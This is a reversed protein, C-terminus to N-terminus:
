IVNSIINIMKELNKKKSLNDMAYLFGNMGINNLENRSMSVVSVMKAALSDENEPPLIWGCMSNEITKSTDSGEDVCAIVPKKSFMYAIVKSPISSMAAGKKVPLLMVDAEDQIEPVMGYPVDKFQINKNKYSAAIRICQDKMSGAGAIILLANKLKAKVFSEILFEVGAVPGINGLYMFSFPKETYDSKISSKKNEHYRIFETEDQWNHIVEIKDEQIKRSEVLIDRMEESIAFIKSVNHLIFKDMPLFLKILLNGIVPIKTALSEPYIDDIQIISPLSYKKASKAISYQALMPWANIYIGDIESRNKKIYESVHRGFSYSEKIRGFLKFEPCTYSNLIIQEFKNKRLNVNHFSFRLPRTPKPTLVKVERTDSLAIALEYTIYASTGQDPPFVASIILIM